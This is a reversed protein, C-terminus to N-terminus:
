TYRGCASRSERKMQCVFAIFSWPTASHSAAGSSSLAQPCCTGAFLGPRRSLACPEPAQGHLSTCASSGYRSPSIPLLTGLHLSVSSLPPVPKGGSRLRAVTPIRPFFPALPKADITAVSTLRRRVCVSRPGVSGVGRGSIASPDM